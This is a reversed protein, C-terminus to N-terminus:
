PRGRRRRAESFELKTIREAFTRCAAASRQSILTRAGVGRRQYMNCEKTGEFKGPGERGPMKQKRFIM